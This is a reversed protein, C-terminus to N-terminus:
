RHFRRLSRSVLGRLWLYVWYVAASTIILGRFSRRFTWPLPPLQYSRQQAYEVAQLVPELYSLRDWRWCVWPKPDCPGLHAVFASADYDLRGSFLPPAGEAFALLSNLVSEDTQFYAYNHSDHPKQRADLFKLSQDHWHQLFAMYRTHITLNGSCVTQELRSSARQGVDRQWVRAIGAPIGESEGSGYRSAFVLSDERKSKVRGYLGPQSYTLYASIDGTVVCDSDLLTLYESGTSRAALLLAEGKRAAPSLPLSLDAPLVRCNQLQELLQCDQSTLGIGLVRVHARVNHRELSLLLVLAALLYNRDTITVITPLLPNWSVEEQAESAENVRIFEDTASSSVERGPLLKEQLM